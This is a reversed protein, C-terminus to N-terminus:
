GNYCSYGLFISMGICHCHVKQPNTPCFDLILSFMLNDFFFLFVVTVEVMSSFRMSLKPNIYNPWIEMLLKNLWECHELPTVPQAFIYFSYILKIFGFSIHFFFLSLESIHATHSTEM